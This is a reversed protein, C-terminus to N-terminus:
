KNGESVIDDDTIVAEEDGGINVRGGGAYGVVQGTRKQMIEIERNFEKTFKASLKDYNTAIFKFFNYATWMEECHWEVVEKMM